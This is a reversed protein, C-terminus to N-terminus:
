KAVDAADPTFLEVVLTFASAVLHFLGSFFGAIAPFTVDNHELLLVLVAGILIGTTIPHAYFWWRIAAARERVRLPTRSEVEGRDMPKRPAIATAM